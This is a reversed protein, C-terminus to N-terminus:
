IINGSVTNNNGEIESEKYATNVSKNNITNNQLQLIIEMLFYLLVIYLNM